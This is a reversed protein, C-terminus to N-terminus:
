YIIREKIKYVFDDLDTENRIPFMDVDLEGSGYVKTAMQGVLNEFRSIVLSGCKGENEIISLVWGNEPGRWLLCPTGLIQLKKYFSKYLNFKETGLFNMVQLENPRQNENQFCVPVDESVVLDSFSNTSKSKHIFFIILAIMFVIALYFEWFMGM